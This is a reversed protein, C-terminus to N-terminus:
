GGNVASECFDKLRVETEYLQKSISRITEMNLNGEASIRPGVAVMTRQYWHERPRVYIPIIPAKCRLAMMAAGDKFQDVRQDGQHVAGEPFIVVMHGADLNDRVGHFTSMSFNEKNVEICHVHTFFWKGIRTRFLESTAVFVPCRSPIACMIYTPDLMSSHNAVVLCPGKLSTKGEMYIKKPRLVLIAPYIGTVKVFKYFFFSDGRKM